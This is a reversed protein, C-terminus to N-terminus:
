GPVVRSATSTASSSPPYLTITASVAPTRSVVSGTSNSPMRRDSARARPVRIERHRHEVGSRLAVLLRERRPCMAARIEDHAVLHVQGARSAVRGVRGVRGVRRRVRDRARRPFPHVREDLREAVATAARTVAPAPSSAFTEAM